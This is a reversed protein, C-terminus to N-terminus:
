NRNYTLLIKGTQDDDWQLTLNKNETIKWEACFLFCLYTSKVADKYDLTTRNGKYGFTVKDHQVEIEDPIDYNLKDASFPIPADKEIISVSALVWKGQPITQENGQQAFLSLPDFFLVCLVFIVFAGAFSKKNEHLSYLKKM